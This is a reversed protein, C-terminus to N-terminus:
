TQVIAAVSGGPTAGCPSGVVDGENPPTIAFRGDPWVCIAILLGGIAAGRVEDLCSRHFEGLPCAEEIIQLMNPDHTHGAIPEAFTREPSTTPTTPSPVTSSPSSVTSSPSSVASGCATLTIILVVVTPVRSPRFHTWRLM